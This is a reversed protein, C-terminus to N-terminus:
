PRNGMAIRDVPGSEVLLDIQDGPDAVGDVLLVTRTEPVILGMQEAMPGIRTPSELEAVKLTLLERRDEEAAIRSNLDTLEFAGADLSTRAMVIGFMSAMVVLGFIVFPGVQPRLQRRGGVVRLGSPRQHAVRAPRATM